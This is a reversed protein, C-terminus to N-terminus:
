GKQFLQINEAIAAQRKTADKIKLIDEKTMTGATNAPPTSTDAGQKGQETVFDAWETTFYSTAGDADKIAGSDDLEYSDVDTAKLIAPIRKESIGAKKAIETLATVKAQRSAKRDQDAKYEDFEKKIDDHKKKWDANGASKDLERQLEDVRDAKTKTEALETQLRGIVETHSEMIQDIATEELGLAKLFKRTFAM